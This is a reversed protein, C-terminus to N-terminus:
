KSLSGEYDDVHVNNLRGGGRKKIVSVQSLPRSGLIRFLHFKRCLTQISRIIISDGRGRDNITVGRLYLIQDVLKNARLSMNWM